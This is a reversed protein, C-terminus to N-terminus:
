NKYKKVNMIKTLKTNESASELLTIYIILYTKFYKLLELKFTISETQQKIKFARMKRYDLKECFQKTKFNKQSLYIKQETKFISINEHKLNYYIKMKEHVFQLNKKLQKHIQQM